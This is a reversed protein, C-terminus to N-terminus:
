NAQEQVLVWPAVVVAWLDVKQDYWQQAQPESVGSVVGDAIWQQFQDKNDQSLQLAVEVLDVDRSVCVVRGAAFYRQLELWNILATEMNLKAKLTDQPTVDKHQSNSM